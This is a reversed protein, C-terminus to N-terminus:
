RYFTQKQRHDVMVSVPYPDSELYYVGVPDQRQPVLAKFPVSGMAEKQRSTHGNGRPFPSM